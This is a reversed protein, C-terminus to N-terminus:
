NSNAVQPHWEEKIIRWDKQWKELYLCKEGEDEHKDDRYYQHFCAITMKGTHNIRLDKIEIKINNRKSFIRQKWALWAKLDMEQSYFRPSYCAAYAALDEHQWYNRWKQIFDKISTDSSIKTSLPKVLSLKTKIQNGLHPNLALVREYEQRALDYKGMAEFTLGLGYHIQYDDKLALAKKFAGMAKEYQGLQYYTLGLYHHVYAQEPLAVAAKKLVSLAKIYKKLLYYIEGLTYYIEKKEPALALAIEYNRAAKELQGDEKAMQAQHIFFSVGYEEDLGAALRYEAIAKNFDGEEQYLKGLLFHARASKPNVQLIREYEARLEENTPNQQYLQQYEIIAKGVYLRALNFRAISYDPKIEIAKKFVAEAQETQGQVWYIVGLTNYAKVEHPFDKIITKLHLIAKDYEKKDIYARILNYRATLFNPNLSLAKLWLKVAKDLEGIKVYVMGLDNYVEVAKPAQTLIKEFVRQAQKYQGAQFYTLGVQRDKE